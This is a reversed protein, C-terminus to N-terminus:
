TQDILKGKLQIPHYRPVIDLKYIYFEFCFFFFFFPPTWFQAWLQNKGNKCTQLMLKGQYQEPNFNPVIDLM